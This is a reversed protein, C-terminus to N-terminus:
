GKVLRQYICCMHHSIMHEACNLMCQQGRGVCRASNLMKPLLLRTFLFHGLHNVGLQLEFGDATEMRPCAMVGANNLLIDLPKDSDSIRAAADRVSALNALDLTLSDVTAGLQEARIRSVAAAARAPDRCALTVDYGKACLM